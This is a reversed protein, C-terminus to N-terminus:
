LLRTRPWSLGPCGPLGDVVGGIENFGCHSVVEGGLPCSCCFLDAILSPLEAVQFWRSKPVASTPLRIHKSRSCDLLGYGDLRGKPAKSADLFRCRPGEQRQEGGCWWVWPCVRGEELRWAPAGKRRAWTPLFGGRECGQQQGSMAAVGWFPERGERPNSALRALSM